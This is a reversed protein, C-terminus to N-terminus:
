RHCLQHPRLPRSVVGGRSDHDPQREPRGIGGSRHRGGDAMGPLLRCHRGTAGRGRRLRHLLDAAFGGRLGGRAGRRVVHIGMRNKVHVPEGGAVIGARRARVEPMRGWRRRGARRPPAASRECDNSRQSPVGDGAHLASSEPNSAIGSGEPMMPFRRSNILSSHAPVTGQGRGAGPFREAAGRGRAGRVTSPPHSARRHYFSAPRRCPSPERRLGPPRTRREADFGVLSTAM